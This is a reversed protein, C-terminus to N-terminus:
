SGNPTGRRQRRGSMIRDCGGMMNDATAEDKHGEGKNNCNCSTHNRNKGLGHTWCYYMTVNNNLRVGGQDQTPPTPTPTPGAPTPQTAANAGQYGATQATLKRLREKNERTFHTVFNALTQDALAKDRWKDIGNTLVGTSEFVALTLRVAAAEPINEGTATAFARVQTIRVWIDEIPTEPNWTDSLKKRNAEIDDQTITGYNTFLHSLMTAPAVDAYGMNADELPKLYQEDVAELIMRRLDNRVTIHVDYVNIRHNYTMLRAHVQPSTLGAVNPPNGPHNPTTYAAAVGGRAQYDAEPMIVGLHGQNGDADPSCVNRANAYLERRLQILNLYKPKGVIKTLIPKPYTVTINNTTM